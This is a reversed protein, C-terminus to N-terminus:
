VVVDLGADKLMRVAQYAHEIKCAKNTVLFKECLCTREAEDLLKEALEHKVHEERSEEEESMLSAAITLTPVVFANNQKYAEVLEATPPEDFFCHALGDVGAKLITLTDKQAFAHAVAVLGYSHAASIVATQVEPTPTPLLGTVM